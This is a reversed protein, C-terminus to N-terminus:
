IKTYSKNYIQNKIQNEAAYNSVIIVCMRFCTIANMSYM